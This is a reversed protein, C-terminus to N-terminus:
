ASTDNPSERKRVDKRHRDSFDPLADEPIYWQITPKSFKWRDAHPIKGARVINLAQQRSIGHKKAWESLPVLTIM